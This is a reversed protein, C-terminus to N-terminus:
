SLYLRQAVSFQLFFQLFSVLFQKVQSELQRGLLQNIVALQRGNPLPDRPNICYDALSLEALFLLHFLVPFDPNTFYGAVLHSLRHDHLHLVQAPVREIMLNYLMRGTEFRM